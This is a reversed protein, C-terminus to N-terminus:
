IGKITEISDEKIIQIIFMGQPVEITMSSSMSRQQWLKHGLIDYCVIDANLPVNTLLAQTSGQIKYLQVKEKENLVTEVETIVPEETEITGCISISDIFFVNQSNEFRLKSHLPIYRITTTLEQEETGMAIKGVVKDDSNYITLESQLTSHGKIYLQLDSNVPLVPTKLEGKEANNGVKVSGNYCYIKNGEWNKLDTLNDLDASIENYSEMTMNNFSESFCMSEDIDLHTGNKTYIAYLFSEGDPYYIDGAVGADATESNIETSWGVFVIDNDNTTVNPLIIGAECNSETLELTECYGYNGSFFMVTFPCQKGGMFDFTIISNNEKINTIPYNDYPSYSIVSYTGPFLDSGTEYGFDGGAEIIDVGMNYSSNNVVNSEWNYESYKIKTIMMGHAALYKDWGTKQRNELLFFTTPNPDQGDLNHKGNSSILYAKNTSQLEGLKYADSSNLITPTMWGVYFREYASYSPPTNGNNNYSGADMLDFSGLTKHNSGYDTIYLDPLGLVHSFEHTFTGIGCRTSGYSGRFESTCAYDYITVGNYKTQGSVYGPYVCWRHPWVSNDPGGEAENNGAYYIFINDVYGDNDTDYDSFDVNATQDAALKACADVVMQAPNQDNGSYDNGGYYARNKDLTYPGYVDFQPSYQGMSVSEFYDKASGTAGNYNYGKKNLLDSINEKSNTFELDSYSVLIVLGKSGTEAKAKNSSTKVGAKKTKSPFSKLRAKQKAKAISTMQQFDCKGIKELQLTVDATRQWVNTVKISTPEVVSNKVKAYYYNGDNGMKILYGDTTTTFSHNEDGYLLIEITDGDATPVKIVGKKAPVAYLCITTLCLYIILAFKKM